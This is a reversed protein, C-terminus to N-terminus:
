ALFNPIVLLIRDFIWFRNFAVCLKLHHSHSQCKQNIIRMRIINHSRKISNKPWLNILIHRSINCVVFSLTVQISLATRVSLVKLLFPLSDSSYASPVYGVATQNEHLWDSLPIDTGNIMAPGSSHTGMRSTIENLHCISYM